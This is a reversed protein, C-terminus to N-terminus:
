DFFAAVRRRNDGGSPPTVMSGQFSPDIPNFTLDFSNSSHDVFPSIARIDNGLNLGNSGRETGQLGEHQLAM